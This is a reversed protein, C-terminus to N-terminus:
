QYQSERHESREKHESVLTRRHNKERQDSMTETKKTRPWSRARAPMNCLLKGAEYKGYAMSMAMLYYSIVGALLFVDDGNKEINPLCCAITRLAKANLAHTRAKSLYGIPPDIRVSCM